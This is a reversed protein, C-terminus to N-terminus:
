FINGFIENNLFYERIHKLPTILEIDKMFLMESRGFSLKQEYKQIIKVRESIHM